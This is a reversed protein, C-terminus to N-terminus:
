KDSGEVIRVIRQFFPNIIMIAAFDGSKITNAPENARDFKRGTSLEFLCNEIEYRQKKSLKM